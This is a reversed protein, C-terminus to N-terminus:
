NLRVAGGRVRNLNTARSTINKGRVRIEGDASVTVISRGTRIRVSESAALEITKADIRFHDDLPEHEPASFVQALVPMGASELRLVIAPVPALALAAALWRRDISRPVRVEICTGVEDRFTAKGNSELAVVQGELYRGERSLDGTAPVTKLKRVSHM